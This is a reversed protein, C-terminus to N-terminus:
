LELYSGEASRLFEAAQDLIEQCYDEDKMMKRITCEWFIIIRINMAELELIQRKDRETNASFKKEWFETNSKPTSALQCNKHRHWFCGNVFIVTNYKRLYLDPKGLLEKKHIRYRYGMAFIHKRIFVEPKTNESRIKAMNKSREERSKIDM